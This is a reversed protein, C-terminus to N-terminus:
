RNGTSIEDDRNIVSDRNIRYNKYRNWSDSLDEIDRNDRNGGVSM